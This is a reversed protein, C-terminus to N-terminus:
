HISRLARAAEADFGSTARILRNTRLHMSKIHMTAAGASMACGTLALLLSWRWMDERTCMVGWAGFICFAVGTWLVGAVMAAVISSKSVMEESM